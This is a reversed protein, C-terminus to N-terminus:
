ALITVLGATGDVRILQGTEIVTTARGTGVVAPLGYERCVIAAHSMVGGVDTVTARIRPFIPAWAPSTSGCVLIEGDLVDALEDVSRVVRAPGEVIGPSAAAGSLEHGGEVQRAWDQVRETTAGGLMFTM